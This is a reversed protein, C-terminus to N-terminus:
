IVVWDFYFKLLVFQDLNGIKPFSDNIADLQCLVLLLKEPLDLCIVYSQFPVVSPVQLIQVFDFQANPFEYHEQPANLALVDLAVRLM